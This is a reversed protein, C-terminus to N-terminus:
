VSGSNEWCKVFNDYKKAMKVNNKVLKWSFKYINCTFNKIANWGSKLFKWRNEPINEINERSPIIVNTLAIKVM